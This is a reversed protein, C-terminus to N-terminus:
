DEDDDLVDDDDPGMPIGARQRHIEALLQRLVGAQQRAEQLAKDVQVEVVQDRNVRVRLWASREGSILGDLRELRDAVRGAETIMVTIRYPDGDRTLDDVLRAGATTNM